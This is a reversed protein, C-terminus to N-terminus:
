RLNPQRSLSEDAEYCGKDPAWEEDIRTLRRNPIDGVDLATAEYKARACRRNSDMTSDDTTGTGVEM